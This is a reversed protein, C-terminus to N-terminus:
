PSAPCGCDPDGFLDDYIDVLDKGLSLPNVFDLAEGLLNEGLYTTVAVSSVVKYFTHGKVGQTQVHAQNGGRLHADKPHHIVKGGHATEELRVADRYVDAKNKGMACVSKQAKRLAIAAKTSVTAGPVWGVKKGGKLVWKVAKFVSEGYPDFAALPSDESYRYTGFGGDM